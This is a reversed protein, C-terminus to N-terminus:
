MVRRVTVDGSSFPKVVGDIEVLLSGDNAVGRGCGMFKQTGMDITLEQGNLVDLQSWEDRFAALGHQSFVGFAINLEAILGAALANRDVVTDLAANLDSWAQDIEANPPMDVNLGIGVVAQCPGGTEGSVEILIGGLKKQKYLVDNPWKLGVDSCGMSRLLRIVAVGVVLSLGLMQSTSIDFRHLMSFYLNAGFPSVWQKGRRGRGGTQYEALCVTSKSSHQRIRDSLFRNTSDVENLVVLDVDEGSAELQQQITSPDLLGLPRELRYGQSQIRECVLGLEDLSEIHKWVATRSVQFHEALDAGSHLEGDALIRILDFRNM